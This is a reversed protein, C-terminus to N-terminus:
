RDESGHSVWGGGADIEEDGLEIEAEGAGQAGGQLVGVDLAQLREPAAQMAQELVGARVVVDADVEQTAALGPQSGVELAGVVRGERAQVVDDVRAGVAAEAALGVAQQAGGVAEAGVGVVEVEQAAAGGDRGEGVGGEDGVGRRGQEAQAVEPLKGAQTVELGGLAAGAEGGPVGKAAAGLGAM